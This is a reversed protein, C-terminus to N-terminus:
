LVQKNFIFFNFCVLGKCRIHKICITVPKPEKIQDVLVEPSQRENYIYALKEEKDREQASTIGNDCQISTMYCQGKM